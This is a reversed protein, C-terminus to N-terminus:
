LTKLFDEATLAPIYSKKYHKLNRTVIRQCGNEIATFYQLADEFDNFESELALEITNQTVPLAKLLNLLTSLSTKAISKGREKVIFYYLNNIIVSSTFLQISPNRLSLLEQTYALHPERLLFLDLLVDSDVFIKSVM